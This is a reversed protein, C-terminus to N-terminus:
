LYKEALYEEYAEALARESPMPGAPKLMGRWLKPADGAHPTKAEAIDQRLSRTLEELLLLREEIPLQKIEAAIERFTM